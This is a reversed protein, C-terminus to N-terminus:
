PQEIVECSVPIKRTRFNEFTFLIIAIWIIVFGILKDQSFPEAFLFVGTIFQLTPSVYQLIGMITLPVTQVAVAFFLLPAATVVSTFGLLLNNQLTTHGFAGTGQSEQVLLYIIAPIFIGSTELSLGHLPGLPSIKKILGYVGFTTALVLSIWPLQGFSITIYAVGAAAIGIAIWQIPKLTEKLFIVGLVVNVLPNIFYGLSCEIVYGEGIAWVYTLWNIALLVGASTYLLLEKRHISQRFTNFEKRIAIILMLFLFSWVIRHMTVQVAPVDHIQKFYIPFLGWLFYAIFGNLTGKNM